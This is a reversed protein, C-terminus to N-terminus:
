GGIEFMNRKDETDKENFFCHEKPKKGISERIKDALEDDTCGARLLARVDLGDPYYLCLKLLGDVTLRIRNCQECFSHSIPSILGVRGAFGPFHVYEAPGSEEMSSTGDAPITEPTGFSEALVALIEQQRMGQMHVACGIPMLEIFRVDIRRDRAYAALDPLSKDNVGVIPVANLKIHFGMDYAMDIARRVDELADTGTLREFCARDLTDLSINLSTLGAKAFGELKDALLVANTTLALQPHSPLESLREVFGTVGKRVLPEGGTLRIRTIGMESLVGAVRYLEELSLLEEHRLRKIGEEPMCYRCRLNCKDTLSIRLYEIKRGYADTLSM